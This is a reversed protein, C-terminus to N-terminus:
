DLPRQRTLYVRINSMSQGDTELRLIDILLARNTLDVLLSLTTIYFFHRAKKKGYGM